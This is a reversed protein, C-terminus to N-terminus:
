SRWRGVQRDVRETTPTTQETQSRGGEKSDEVRRERLTTDTCTQCLIEQRDNYTVATGSRIENRFLLPPLAIMVEREIIISRIAVLFFPGRFSFLSPFLPTSSVHLPRM